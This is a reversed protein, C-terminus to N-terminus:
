DNSLQLTRIKDKLSEIEHRAKEAFDKGKKISEIESQLKKITQLHELIEGAM